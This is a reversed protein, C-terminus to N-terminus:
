TSSITLIVLWALTGVPKPVLRTRIVVGEGERLTLPRSLESGTNKYIVVSEVSSLSSPDLNVNGIGVPSGTFSAGGTPDIRATIQAPVSPQITDHSTDLLTIGGTGVTTTRRLEFYVSAGDVISADFQCMRIELIRIIKGSGAGNFIDFLNQAVSAASTLVSASGYSYTDQSGAATTSITIVDDAM